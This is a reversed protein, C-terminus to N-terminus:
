KSIAYTCFSIKKNFNTYKSPFNSYEIKTIKNSKFTKDLFENVEKKTLINYKIDNKLKNNQELNLNQYIKKKIKKDTLRLDFIIIKKSLKNSQKIIKKWNKNLHLIGLVFVIDFKKKIFKTFTLNKTCIFNNKPYNVKAKNIMKINYDLGTYDFSTSIKKLAESLGGQACGIDLVSYNKKFFKKILTKEGTYLDSWKNRNNNYFNLINKQGWKNKNIM